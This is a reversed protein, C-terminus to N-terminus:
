VTHHRAYVTKLEADVVHLYQKTTDLSSHGLFKQVHFLNCNTQLLNTAFSHRMTHPHINITFGAKKRVNKFVEQVTGPTIRQMSQNNIFLAAHNDKRAELYHNLLRITREDMFCLRARGGKGIVTFTDGKIQMRDLNCLESVRLGSGYLMSIIAKNRKKNVKVGCSMDCARILRAVDEPSIYEPVTDSRQPIGVVDPDLTKEGIGNTHRLVVRLALIYTRVTAPCRGKDLQAKWKRVAPFDLESVQIDGLFGVLSKETIRNTEETSESMNRFTIVDQRYREFAESLKM